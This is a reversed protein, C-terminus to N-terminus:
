FRFDHKCDDFHGIRLHIPSFVPYFLNKVSDGSALGKPATRM